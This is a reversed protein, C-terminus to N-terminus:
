NGPQPAPAGGRFADAPAVAAASESEDAEALAQDLNPTLDGEAIVRALAPDAADRRRGPLRSVLGGVLVQM